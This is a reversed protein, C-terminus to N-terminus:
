KMGTKVTRVLKERPYLREVMAHAACTQLSSLTLTSFVASKHSETISNVAMTTETLFHLLLPSLTVTMANRILTHPPTTNSPTITSMLLGLELRHAMNLPGLELHNNLARTM